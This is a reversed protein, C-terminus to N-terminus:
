RFTVTKLKEIIEFTAPCIKLNKLTLELLQIFRKRNTHPYDKCASPRDEYITCYNTELDLFTCPSGNLVYDKDEDIHLYKEIFKQPALKLSKAAREIDKQYFIPSTTRCCNACKLCDVNAFVDEHIAQITTDLQKPKNKKIKKFLEKTGAETQRLLVPLNKVEIM